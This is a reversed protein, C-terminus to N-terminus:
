NSVEILNLDPVRRFEKANATMLAHGFTLATAAIWSDHTGIANGTSILMAALRSHERAVRLDIPIANFQDLISDVFSQRRARRSDSSARHVGVLLESVTIISILAEEEKRNSPIQDLFSGLENSHKSREAAIFVNTDLIVGM